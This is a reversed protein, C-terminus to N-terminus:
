PSRDPHSKPLYSERSRRPKAGWSKTRVADHISWGCKMRMNAVTRSVGFHRCAASISHFHLGDIDVPVLNRRNEMMQVTKLVWRCNEPSYPGNPNLRDISHGEPRIGMDSLFDTFSLNWRDCVTIGRGGWNPFDKCKPDSCRRKM